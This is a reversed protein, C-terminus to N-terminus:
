FPYGIAINLVLNRKRWMPDLFNIEDFAWRDSGYKLEDQGTTKNHFWFKRIPMGLDLRLILFSVDVRLGFGTGIALEDLVKNMKFVQDSKKPFTSTNDVGEVLSDSASRTLWTNGADIFFAGKLISVLDFRYEINGELRMDGLQTFFSSGEDPDHFVGPGITRAKFARIGSPGGVYFLKSFPLYDSNGYPYGVGLFFRTAIRESQSLDHYFRFDVDGRAYQSYVLGGIKSNGTVEDRDVNLNFTNEALKMLNGSVDANGNFYFHNRGRGANEMLNNYTYSYTSGLIVLDEFNIALSPITDLKKRFDSGEVIDYNIYSVNIPNLVHERAATEKWQYGVSTNVSNQSYRQIYKQLIYSIELKTRPVFLSNKPSINFPLLFRPLFLQVQPQVEYAYVNKYKGSFQTEFSTNLNVILLEAGRFANRNKFSFQLAPGAFNTSKTYVQVEARLSKKLLPSMQIRSRLRGEGASDRESFRINVYKFVDLGMLRNLTINHNKRSYLSDEEIFVLRTLAQPRFLGNGKKIFNIGDVPITYTQESTTDAIEYEPNLFIKGMRYVKLGKEPVDPKIKLYLNIMRDGIASDVEFILFDPNFYFYGLEKLEDDIRQREEELKELSFYDQPKILSKEQFRAIQSDIKSDIKPYFFEKVQYPPKVSANFKLEMKKGREKEETEIESQFYGRNTLLNIMRGEITETNINEILVPPEGLKRKIWAKVGKEKEEKNVNYYVWLKPYLGFIRTNHAPLLAELDQRLTKKEPVKGVNNIKVSGDTYLTENNNLHKTVNCGTLFILIFIGTILQLQNKM